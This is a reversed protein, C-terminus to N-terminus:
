NDTSASQPSLQGSSNFVDKVKTTGGGAKHIKINMQTDGGSQHSFKVWKLTGGVSNLAQTVYPQYTAPVVTLKQNFVLAGTAGSASMGKASDKADPRDQADGTRDKSDKLDQISKHDQATKRDQSQKHDQADGGHGNAAPAGSFGTVRGTSPQESSLRKMLIASSLASVKVDWVQSGRAVHIDWVPAGGMHDASTHVLTSGPVANQAIQDAQQASVTTQAMAPIALAGTTAIAAAITWTRLLGRGRNEVSHKM